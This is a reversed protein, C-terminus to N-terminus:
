KSIPKVKTIYEKIFKLSDKAIIADERTYQYNLYRANNSMDRLTKYYSYIENHEHLVYRVQFEHRGEDLYRAKKYFPEFKDYKFGDIQSPVMLYRVFHLSSYFATTIIWDSFEEKKSLFNCVLENHKAHEFHHQNQM